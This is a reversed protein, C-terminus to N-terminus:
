GSSKDSWITAIVINHEKDKKFGLKELHFVDLTIPWVEGEYTRIGESKKEWDQVSLEFSDEGNKLSDISTVVGVEDYYKGLRGMYRLLNGPKIENFKM